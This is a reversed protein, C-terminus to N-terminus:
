NVVPEIHHVTASNSNIGDFPLILNGRLFDYFAEGDVSSTTIELAILGTTYITSVM